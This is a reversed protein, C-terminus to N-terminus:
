IYRRSGYRVIAERIGNVLDQESDFNALYKLTEGEKSLPEGKNEYTVLFLHGLRGKYEEPIRKDHMMLPVRLSARKQPTEEEAKLVIDLSFDHYQRIDYEVGDMSIDSTAVTPFCQECSTPLIITAMDIQPFNPVNVIRNVYVTNISQDTYLGCALAMEAISDLKVAEFFASPFPTNFKKFQSVRKQMEAYVDRFPTFLATLSDRSTPHLIEGKGTLEKYKKFLEPHKMPNLHCAYVEFAIPLTIGQRYQCFMEHNLRSVDEALELIQDDNLKTGGKKLVEETQSDDEGTGDEDDDGM